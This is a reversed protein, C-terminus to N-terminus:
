SPHKGLYSLLRNLSHQFRSMGLEPPLCVPDVSHIFELYRTLIALEDVGTFAAYQRIYNTSYVGGPLKQFEEAEIAQLFHISIKTAEALADLSIGRSRRQEELTPRMAIEALENKDNM